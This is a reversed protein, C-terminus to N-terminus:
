VNLKKFNTWKMVVRVLSGATLTGLTAGSRRGMVTATIPSESSGKHFSEADSNFYSIRLEKCTTGIRGRALHIVTFAALELM